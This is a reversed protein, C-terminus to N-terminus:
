VKKWITEFSRAEGQLLPVYSTDKGDNSFFKNNKIDLVAFVVEPETHGRLQDEMLSLIQSVKDKTLKTPKFYLKVAYFIGGFEIGLEPNIRVGLDGIRWHCFPPAFWSITKRGWFKKYGEIAIPYNDIKKKDTLSDLINKLDKKSKLNQHIEILGERLPKYFDTSPNYGPRYKIEKVKTMKSGGSKNVFEMFDTLSIEILSTRKPM